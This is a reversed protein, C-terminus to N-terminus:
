YTIGSGLPIKESVKVQLKGRPAIAGKLLKIFSDAYVTQNGYFGGEGYGTIFAAVGNLSEVLYPNGYSVAVTSQPRLKIIKDLFALDKEPLIGHDKYVTRPYFLSIVVTDTEPVTKLAQDYLGPDGNPRFFFTRVTSFSNKLKSAVAVAAEDIEKKQIVLHLIKGVKQETAPFFGKNKLLTISLDAIKHVLSEHDSQGVVSSIRDEDVLKHRHLNLRAKWYLLKMVSQDIKEQGIEGSKVAKILGEIASKANAPKLIVDHGAQVAMVCAKDAGFRKVMKDYWMDDSTLVGKFGLKERLWFTALKPAVSAPLDSGDTLSPVAIHDSMIFTVGADIAAKFAFLDEAEVQEAPKKNITFETGPILEVDGRGPYHKATALMGNEQYGRIYAGAMEALLKMDGGFSRVSLVPNDPRTQIDVVPSYTLHIGVARGELAGAKGVEYAIERSGIASLAMNAPFETAGLLQQGPGGEFDASILLPIKAEKQLRNLLHATEHPTGGYLVFGGIGYDRALKLWYQFKPDDQPAYEGRMQECIMQGIKQELTLTELTKKAWREAEEPSALLPSGERKQSLSGEKQCAFIGLIATVALFPWLNRKMM